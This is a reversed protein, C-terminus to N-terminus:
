VVAMAFMLAASMASASILLKRRSIFRMAPFSLMNGSLAISLGVMVWVFPQGIEAQVYFYVSFAAIFTVGSASQGVAATISILTRRLNTGKFAGLLRVSAREETEAEWAIRMILVDEQIRSNDIIGRLRRIAAAAKDDHGRSIHYRPTEPLCLLGASVIVPVAFMVGLPIRYSKATLYVQTHNDVLIGVLAGFTVQFMVMGVVPGRLYAPAAEGMYVVSYTTFFGNSFGLLFRGAYLAGPHTSGIQVAVAVASVM